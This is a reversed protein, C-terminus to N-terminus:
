GYNKAELGEALMRKVHSAAEGKTVKSDKNTDLGRNVAYASTGAVWLPYDEDEGIAKPWLIAMYIDEVSSLPGHAKIKQEFYKYVFNLQDEATMAALRATTTGLDRATAEMFQILGTASSHPNKKSASFSRGSEFAMCAMLDHPDLKLTESIWLVRAKFDASVKKGWALKISPGPSPAQPAQATPKLLSKALALAQELLVILQEMM